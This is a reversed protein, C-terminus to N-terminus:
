TQYYGFRAQRAPGGSRRGDDVLARAAEKAVPAVAVIEVARRAGTEEVGLERAVANTEGEPRNRSIKSESQDAAQKQKSAPKRQPVNNVLSAQRSCRRFLAV